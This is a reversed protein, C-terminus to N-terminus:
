SDHRAHSAFWIEPLSMMFCALLVRRQGKNASFIADVGDVPPWPAAVDLALPPLFNACASEERWALISAHNSQLDSSQWLLHPLGQSFFAAHQGSGSGIELVKRRNSFVRLLVALIPERNRECAPSFQKM